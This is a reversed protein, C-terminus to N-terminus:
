IFVLSLKPENYGPEIKKDWKKLSYLRMKLAKHNQTSETQNLLYGKSHFERKIDLYFRWPQIATM